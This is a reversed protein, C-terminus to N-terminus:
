NLGTSEPLAPKQLREPIENLKDGGDITKAFPCQQGTLPCILGVHGCISDFDGSYCQPFKNITNSIIIATACM